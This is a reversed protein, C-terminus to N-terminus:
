RNRSEMELMTKKLSAGQVAAFGGLGGDSRVVRHCPALLPIPNQRMATGVARAARPNGAMEALQRYTVRSGYPIKELARYVKEAFPTAGRLATKFAGFEERNGAFYRQVAKELAPFARPAGRGAFREARARPAPLMFATITKRATFLAACFGFPTQIVTGFLAVPPADDARRM